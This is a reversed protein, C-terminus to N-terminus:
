KPEHRNRDATRTLLVRDGLHFCLPPPQTGAPHERQRNTAAEATELSRLHPIVPNLASADTPIIRPATGFLVYFPSPHDRTPRVRYGRVATMLHLDWNNVHDEVLKAIPDKLTRVM